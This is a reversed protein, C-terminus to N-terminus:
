IFAFPVASKKRKEENMNEKGIDIHM